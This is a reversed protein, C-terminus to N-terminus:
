SREGEVEEIRNDESAELLTLPPPSAGATGSRPRLAWQHEGETIEGILFDLLLWRVSDDPWYALAQTQVFVERGADDFLAVAAPDTLLGRPFPIGRTVPQERAACPSRLLLPLSWAAAETRQGSSSLDSPM